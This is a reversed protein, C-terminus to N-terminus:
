LTCPLSWMAVHRLNFTSLWLGIAAGEIKAASRFRFQTQAYVKSSGLPLFRTGCLKIAKLPHYIRESFRESNRTCHATHISNGYRLERQINLGLNVQLPEM